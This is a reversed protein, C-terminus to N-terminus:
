ANNLDDPCEYNPSDGGSIEDGLISSIWEQPSLQADTYNYLLLDHRKNTESKGKVKTEACEQNEIKKNKTQNRTESLPPLLDIEDESEIQSLVARKPDMLVIVRDVFDEVNDESLRDSVAPSMEREEAGRKGDSSSLRGASQLSARRRQSLLQTGSPSGGWDIQWFSQPTDSCVAAANMRHRGVNKLVSAIHASLIGTNDNQEGEISVHSCKMGSVKSRDHNNSNSPYLANYFADCQHCTTATLQARQEKGRVVEHYAIRPPSPANSLNKNNNNLNNQLLSLRKPPQHNFSSPFPRNSGASPPAAPHVSLPLLRSRKSISGIPLASPSPTDLSILAADPASSPSLLSRPPRNDRNLALLPKGTKPIDHSVVPVRDPLPNTSQPLMNYSENHDTFSIEGNVFARQFAEIDKDTSESLSAPENSKEIHSQATPIKQFGLVGNSFSLSTQGPIQPRQKRSKSSSKYQRLRDFDGQTVTLEIEDREDDNEESTTNGHGSQDDIMSKIRNTISWGGQM